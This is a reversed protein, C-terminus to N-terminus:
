QLTDHFFKSTVKKNYLHQSKALSSTALVILWSLTARNGSVMHTLTSLFPVLFIQPLCGKFFKFHYPRGLKWVNKKTWEKISQGM